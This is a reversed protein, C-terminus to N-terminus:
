SSSSWSSSGPPLLHGSVVEKPGVVAGTPRHSAITANLRHLQSAHRESNIADEASSSDWPARHTSQTPRVNLSSHHRSDRGGPLLGPTTLSDNLCCMLVVCYTSVQDGCRCVAHQIPSQILYRAQGSPGIEQYLKM